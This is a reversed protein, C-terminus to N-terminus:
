GHNGQATCNHYKVQENLLYLAIIKKKRSSIFVMKSKSIKAVSFRVIIFQTTHGGIIIIANAHSNRKRDKLVINRLFFFNHTPVWPYASKTMHM